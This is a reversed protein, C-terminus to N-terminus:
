STFAEDWIPWDKLSRLTAERSITSGNNNNNSINISQVRNSRAPRIPSLQEISDILSKITLFIPTAIYSSQTYDRYLEAPETSSQDVLEIFGANKRGMRIVYIGIPWEIRGM